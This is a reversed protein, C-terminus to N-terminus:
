AIARVIEGDNIIELVEVRDQISQKSGFATSMAVDAMWLRNDCVSSINSQPTHGVVMGGRKGINLIDLTKNLTACKGPTSVNTESYVRNWLFGTESFLLTHLDKGIHRINIKGLLLDRIQVNISHIPTSQIHQPLLGGHVFVWNGIQMIANTNCALKKAIAGGPKFLMKRIDEGGFADIHEPTAYTFDGIINMLEHNGLLNYVAGGAKEALKHLHHMFEIVRLEDLPNDYENRQIAIGRGGKDIQDGLQVVITTKGIWEGRRNIVGGKELSLLLSLFDGHIDGIVIIRSTRGVRVYSPPPKVLCKNCNNGRITRKKYYSINKFINNNLIFDM